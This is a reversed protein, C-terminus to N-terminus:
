RRFSARATSCSRNALDPRRRPISPFRTPMKEGGQSLSREREYLQVARELLAEIIGFFHALEADRVDFTLERNRLDALRTLREALSTGKRTLAIPARIQDRAVMKLELLRKVSRSVQAKDVGVSGALEAPVLPGLNQLLLLIRRDLEILDLERAYSLEASERVKHLLQWLDSQIVHPASQEARTDNIAPELGNLVIGLRSLFEPPPPTRSGEGADAESSRAGLTFSTVIRLAEDAMPGLAGDLVKRDADALGAPDGGARRAGRISESWDPESWIRAAVGTLVARWNGAKTAITEPAMTGKFAKSRSGQESM